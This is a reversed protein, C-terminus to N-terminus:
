FPAVPAFARIPCALIAVLIPCPALHAHGVFLGIPEIWSTSLNASLSSSTAQLSSVITWVVAPSSRNEGRHPASYRGPQVLLVFHESQM